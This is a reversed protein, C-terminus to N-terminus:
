APQLGVVPAPRPRQHQITARAWDWLAGLALLTVILGVLTGLWPIATLGVYLILGVGLPVLPRESWSPQVRQVLWRGVTTAVVIAAVYGAFAVYGIVLAADTLMGFAVALAALGGLTLYGFTIALIITVILIGIVAAIFAVFAVLGWALSPLPRVEISDSLRRTWSPTLWLM